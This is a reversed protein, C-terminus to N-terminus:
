SLGKDIRWKLKTIYTATLPFKKILIIKMKALLRLQSKALSIWSFQREKMFENYIRSSYFIDKEFGEMIRTENELIDMLKLLRNARFIVKEVNYNIIGGFTQKDHQRYLYYPNQMAYINKSFKKVLMSIWVDEFPLSEPMPFIKDAVERKFSWSVKPLSILNSLVFEYDKTLILPNYEYTSQINLKNDTIYSSHCHADFKKMNEYERFFSQLLVDDSDICKIIDGTSLSYGYNTGVVKGKSINKVLTIRNDTDSLKKAVNFTNDTSFDDVIILEWKIMNEKQLEIIADSIYNEVNYAMMIFSIM